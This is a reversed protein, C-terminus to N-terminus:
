FPLDDDNDPTRCLDNPNIEPGASNAWDPPINSFNGSKGAGSTDDSKKWFKFQPANPNESKNMFVNFNSSTASEDEINISLYTEGTGSLKLVFELFFLIIGILEANASM